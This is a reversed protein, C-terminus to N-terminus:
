SEGGLETELAYYDEDQTNNNNLYPNEVGMDEIDYKAFIQSDNAGTELEMNKYKMQLQLLEQYDQMGLEIAKKHQKVNVESKRKLGKVPLVGETEEDDSVGDMMNDAAVAIDADLSVYSYITSNSLSNRRRKKKNNKKRELRASHRKGRRHNSHSRKRRKYKQRKKRKSKNMNKMYESKIPFEVMSRHQMELQQMILPPLMLSMPLPPPPPINIQASLSSSHKKNKRMRKNQKKETEHLIQNPSPSFISPVFSMSKFHAHPLQLNPVTNMRLHINSSVEASAPYQFYKMPMSVSPPTLQINSIAATNMNITPPPPVSNSQQQFIIEHHEYINSTNSAINQAHIPIKEPLKEEEKYQLSINSPVSPHDDNEMAHSNTDVKLHNLKHAAVEYPDIDSELRKLYLYIFYLILSCTIITVTCISTLIIIWITSMDDFVNM